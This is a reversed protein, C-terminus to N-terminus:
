RPELRGGLLEPDTQQDGAREVRQKGFLFLVLAALNVDDLYDWGWGIEM